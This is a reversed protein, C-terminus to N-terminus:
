DNLVDLGPLKRYTVLEIASGGGTSTNVNLGMKNALEVSDGGCFLVYPKNKNEKIAKVLAETGKTFGKEYIGLTGFVFIFKAQKVRSLAEASPITDIIAYGDPIGDSVKADKVDSWAEGERGIVVTEPLAIKDKYKEYAEKAKGRYDENDDEFIHSSGIKRGLASSFVNGPMGGLIEYGYEKPFKIAGKIKEKLKAGGIVAVVKKKDEDSMEIIPMFTDLEKKILFGAAIQKGEEKFISPIGVISAHERHVAGFAESIYVDGLKALQESFGKGNEEEEAHFRLNELLIIDGDDMGDVLEEVEDGVCDPAIKAEKDIGNEQLLKNLAPIVQALSFEDVAKGEPRGLHSMLIVKGGNDIIHKITPITERIRTDDKVKGNKIKVNYDVRVLVRKGELELQDITKYKLM